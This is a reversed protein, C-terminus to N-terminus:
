ENKSLKKSVKEDEALADICSYQFEERWEKFLHKKSYYNRKAERLKKSAYAEDVAKINYWAMDIKNALRKM